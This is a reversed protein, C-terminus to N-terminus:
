PNASSSRFSQNPQVLMVKQGVREFRVLRGGGGSGRDLGIDNSGLGASLGTTFLFPADFRPIELWLSGGRDDWYLPFYGDIKRMGNTRDEITPTAGGGRGQLPAQSIGTGQGVAAPRARLVVIFGTALSVVLMSLRRKSM